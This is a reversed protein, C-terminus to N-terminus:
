IRSQGVFGFPSGSCARPVGGCPEEEEVRADITGPGFFDLNYDFMHLGSMWGNIKEVTGSRTFAEMKEKADALGEALAKTLDSPPDVYPSTAKLLGLPAFREQYSQDKSAPPFAAMWVRLKEFFM